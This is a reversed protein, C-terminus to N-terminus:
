VQFNLLVIRFSNRSKTKNTKNTNVETKKKYYNAGRERDDWNNLM